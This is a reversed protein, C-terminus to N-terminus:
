SQLPGVQVKERNRLVRVRERAREVGRRERMLKDFRGRAGFKIKTIM